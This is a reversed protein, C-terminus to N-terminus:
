RIAGVNVSLLASILNDRGENVFPNTNEALGNHSVGSRLNRAAEQSSGILPSLRQAELANSPTGM